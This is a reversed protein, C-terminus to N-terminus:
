FSSKNKKEEDHLIKIKINFINDHNYIKYDLELIINKRYEDCLKHYKM